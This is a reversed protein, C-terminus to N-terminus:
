PAIATSLSSVLAVNRSLALGSIMRESMAASFFVSTSESACSPSCPQRAVTGADLQLRREDCPRAFDHVAAVADDQRVPGPVRMAIPLNDHLRPGPRDM